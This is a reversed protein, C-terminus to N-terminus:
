VLMLVKPVGGAGAARSAENCPPNRCLQSSERKLAWARPCPWRRAGTQRTGAGPPGPEAGVRAALAGAAGARM